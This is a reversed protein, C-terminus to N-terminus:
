ILKILDESALPVAFAAGVRDDRSWSVHAPFVAGDNLRLILADGRAFTGANEAMFGYRSVNRVTANTKTGDLRVVSAGFQVDFREARRADAQIQAATNAM